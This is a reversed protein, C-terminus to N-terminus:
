GLITLTNIQLDLVESVSEERPGTIIFVPFLIKFLSFLNSPITKFRLFLDIFNPLALYLVNSKIDFPNGIDTFSLFIVPINPYINV